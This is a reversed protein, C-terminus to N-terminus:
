VKSENLDLGDLKPIILREVRVLRIPRIAYGYQENTAYSRELASKMSSVIDVSFTSLFQQQM